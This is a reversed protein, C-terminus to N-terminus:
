DAQMRLRRPPQFGAGAHDGPGQNAMEAERARDPHESQAHEVYVVPMNSESSLSLNPGHSPHTRPRATAHPTTKNITIRHQSARAKPQSFSDPATPPSARRPVIRTSRFRICPLHAAIHSTKQQPHPSTFPPCCSPPPTLPQTIYLPLPPSPWRLPPCLTDSFTCVTVPCCCTSTASHTGKFYCRSLYSETERRMSRMSELGLCYYYRCFLFSRFIEACIMWANLQWPALFISIADAGDRLWRKRSM